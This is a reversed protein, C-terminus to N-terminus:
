TNKDKTILEKIGMVQRKSFAITNYPSILHKDSEPGLPQFWSM